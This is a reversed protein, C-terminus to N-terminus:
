ITFIFTLKVAFNSNTKTKLIYYFGRFQKNFFLLKVSLVFLSYIYIM